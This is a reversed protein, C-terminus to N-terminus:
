RLTLRKSLYGATLGFGQGRSYNGCKDGYVDIEKSHSM